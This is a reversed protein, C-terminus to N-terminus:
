FESFVLNHIMKIAKARSIVKRAEVDYFQSREKDCLLWLSAVGPAKLDEAAIYNVTRGLLKNISDVNVFKLFDKTRYDDEYLLFDYRRERRAYEITVVYFKGDGQGSKKIDIVRAEHVRLKGVM